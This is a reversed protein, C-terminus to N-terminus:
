NTPQSPARDDIAHGEHSPIQATLHRDTMPGPDEEDVLVSYLGSHSGSPSLIMSEVRSQSRSSHQRSHHHRHRRRAHSKPGIGLVYLKGTYYLWQFFISLDFMLTGSSGLVYPVAERLFKQRTEPNAADASNLISLTYTLNGMAAWFFMLISLGQVSKRQFNKWLQPMRSSLYFVTCVWAFIRGLQIINQDAPPASDTGLGQDGDLGRAFVRGIVMSTGSRAHGRDLLAYPTQEQLAPMTQRMTLLILGFLVMSTSRRHAIDSTTALRRTRPRQLLPSLAEGQENDNIPIVAGAGAESLDDHPLTAISETAINRSLHTPHSESRRHHHHHHHHHISHDAEATEPANAVVIDPFSRIRYERRSYYIWQGFLIVDAICFYVALYMQFPLQRTLICGILNSFDGLLWNVLFPLSLSAASSLKFNEIIQPIQANLWCFISVYGLVLSWAQQRTTVCEGLLTQIWSICQPQLGDM